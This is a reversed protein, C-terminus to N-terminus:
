SAEFVTSATLDLFCQIICKKLLLILVTYPSIVLKRDQLTNFFYKTDVYLMDLKYLVRINQYSTTCCYFYEIKDM